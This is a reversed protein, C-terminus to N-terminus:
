RGCRMAVIAKHFANVAEALTHYDARAPEGEQGPRITSVSFIPEESWPVNIQRIEVSWEGEIKNAKLM